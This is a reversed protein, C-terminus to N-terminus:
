SRGVAGAAAAGLFQMYATPEDDLGMAAACRECRVATLGRVAVEGTKQLVFTEHGCGNCFYPAYFSEFSLGDRASEIMNMQRVMVEPCSRVSAAIGESALGSIFRIWARIGASNVFELADLDLVVRRKFGPAAKLERVLDYLRSEENLEGHIRLLPAGQNWDLQLPTGYDSESKLRLM